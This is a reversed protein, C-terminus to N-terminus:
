GSVIQEIIIRLPRKNLSITSGIYYGLCLFLMIVSIIISTVLTNAGVFNILQRLLILEFSLSGYGLIFVTALLSYKLKKSM